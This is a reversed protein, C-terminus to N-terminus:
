GRGRDLAGAAAPAAFTTVTALLLRSASVTLTLARGHVCDEDPRALGFRRRESEPTVTLSSENVSAGPALCSTM